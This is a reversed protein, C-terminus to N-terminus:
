LNVLGAVVANGSELEAWPQVVSWGKGRTDVVDLRRSSLRLLLGCPINEM